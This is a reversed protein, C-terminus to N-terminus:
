CFFHIPLKCGILLIINQDARSTPSATIRPQADRYFPRMDAVRPNDDLASQFVISYIWALPGMEELIQCREADTIKGDIRVVSVAPKVLSEKIGHGGDFFRLMQAMDM